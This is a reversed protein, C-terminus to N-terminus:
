AGGNSTIAIPKLYEPPTPFLIGTFFNRDMARLGLLLNNYANTEDRYERIRDAISDGIKFKEISGEILFSSLKEGELELIDETENVAYAYNTQSALYFAEASAVKGVNCIYVPISICLLIILLVLSPGWLSDWDSKYHAGTGEQKKEEREDLILGGVVMALFILGLIVIFM